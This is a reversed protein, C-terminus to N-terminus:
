EFQRGLLGLPAFLRNLEDEGTRDGDIAHGIQLALADVLPHALKLPILRAGHIAAVLDIALM